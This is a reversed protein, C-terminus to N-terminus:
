PAPRPLARCLLASQRGAVRTLVVVAEHPGELRGLRRRLEEPEVATGRKKVVLRGVGRERLRARLPKLGFPLVEDVAYGTASPLELHRDATVYAISPDVLRGDLAAVVAGVLGARVVAGDPEYLYGGVPGVPPAGAAFPDHVDDVVAAVGGRVVVASRRVGPRALAPSWLAAEVVDGDVSTWQCEWPASAVPGGVPGGVPSGVAGPVLDHDIGPATKVGVPLRHALEVAFSLPPSARRPDLVRRGADDRRAPDLWAGDVGTLDTAAVDECRVESGPFRRLNAAAVAATPEDRDVALVDVGLGALALADGGVGCGLDAVRRVGAAAFRRAHRAAVELRTAQELGAATFLMDDAFPGFKARARARLRSQTLAGAVLVPDHGAARLRQGLALAGEDDYPPLSALLAQGAPSLVAALGAVAPDDM